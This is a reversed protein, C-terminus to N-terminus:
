IKSEDLAGTTTGDVTYDELARFQTAYTSWNTASKYTDVLASPVYIYCDKDGNPNYSANTTGLIHYCNTFANTNALTCMTASRLIVATLSYCSNFVNAAITQASALDVTEIRSSGYFSYGGITTALPLSVNTLSTCYSFPQTGLTRVNPFNISALSSCSYFAQAGLEIVNPFSAETLAECDSFAYRGINTANPFDIYALSECAAFAYAGIKTLDSSFETFSRSVIADMIEDTDGGGSSAVNVTVQGFGDYGDDASYTGNETIEKDQLIVETEPVAVVVSAKETIDYEGNEAITESGSPIIYGDPIPVEVVASAKETVDHTGNETITVSGTPVIYGDPIEAETEIGAIETPMQDLTINETGGTKARIADAIAILKSDLVSSDVVKDYAM